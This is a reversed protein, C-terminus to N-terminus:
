YIHIGNKITSKTFLDDLLIDVLNVINNRPRLIMKETNDNPAPKRGNYNDM